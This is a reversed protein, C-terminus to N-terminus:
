GFLKIYKYWTDVCCFVEGERQALLCLSSIPVHSYKKSKVYFRMKSVEELTLQHAFRKQCEVGTLECSQFESNWRYYSSPSLEISALATKLNTLKEVKKIADIIKKKSSRKKVKKQKFSYPHLSRVLILLEKIATEIKLENELSIIKQCELNDWPLHM